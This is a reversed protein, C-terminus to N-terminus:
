EPVSEMQEWKDNKDDTIKWITGDNCVVTTRVIRNFNHVHVSIAKRKTTKTAM